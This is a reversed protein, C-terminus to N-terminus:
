NRNSRGLDLGVNEGWVMEDAEATPAIGFILLVMVPIFAPQMRM